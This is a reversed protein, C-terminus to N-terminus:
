REEKVGRLSLGLSSAFSLSRELSMKAIKIKNKPLINVWPNGFEVPMKLEKSLFNSLGELNSGGGCLLVKKVGKINSNLHEHSTHNKYYDLYIKIQELLDTVSPVLAEFVMKGNKTEKHLGYKIKLKKAEQSDVKLTQSIAEDFLQSSIPISATFRISGGSYIIFSTRTEGLDIILLPFDTRENKILARAISLSEIELVTPILGAMQLCSIYTEVIKKPLAVILVDYHDPRTQTSPIIQSDLYVDEIPMPIYNEAEYIVASKLDDKSILPMQIVQLFAKKEPLSVIVNKENIKKGHVKDLSQRIIKAVEKEKRIEGDKILGPKIPFDGFSVLDFGEGKKELKSIKLSLDSIDLGFSKPKLNLFKFM